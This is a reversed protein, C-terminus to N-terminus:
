AAGRNTQRADRDSYSAIRHGIMRPRIYLQEDIGGRDAIGNDGDDGDDDCQAGEDECCEECEDNEATDGFGKSCSLVGCFSPELDTDGDLLDLLAILREIENEVEYRLQAMPRPEIDIAHGSLQTAACAALPSATLTLFADLAVALRHTSNPLGIAAASDTSTTM